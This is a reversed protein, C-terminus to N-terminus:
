NEKTSAAARRSIIELTTFAARDDFAGFGITGSCYDTDHATMLPQNMDDVWVTITGSAMHEVKITHWGETMRPEPRGEVNIRHRTDGAVKMIVNHTEGNSDNSIHAYYFHADDRYGFLICVDRGVLSLPELSQGEVMLSYDQLPEDLKLLAYEGPRRVPPLQTGPVALVLCAHGDVEDAKWSGPNLLTLQDVSESLSYRITKMTSVHCCGSLLVAVFILYANRILKMAKDYGCHM